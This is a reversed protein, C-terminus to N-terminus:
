RPASGSRLSWHTQTIFRALLTADNQRAENHHCDDAVAEEELKACACIHSYYSRDDKRRSLTRDNIATGLLLAHTATSGRKETGKM